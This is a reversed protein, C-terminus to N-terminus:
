STPPTLTTLRANSINRSDPSTHQTATTTPSFPSSHTDRTISEALSDAPTFTNYVVPPIRRCSETNLPSRFNRPDDHSASNTATCSAARGNALAANSSDPTSTAALIPAATGTNGRDSETFRTSCRITVAVTSRSPRYAVCVGCTNLISTRNAACSDTSSSTVSSAAMTSNAPPRTPVNGPSGTFILSVVGASRITAFENRPATPGRSDLLPM